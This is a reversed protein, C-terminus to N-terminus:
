ESAKNEFFAKAEALSTKDANYFVMYDVSFRQSRGALTLTYTEGKKLKYVLDFFEHRGREARQAWHWENEPTNTSGEQFYKLYNGLTQKDLNTASEFDGQLKVFADNCWDGRDGELRKSSMMLLRYNGDIPVKVTYQLPSNPEGVSPTNGMFELYTKGSANAVYNKNKSTIKLWKGLPSKTSEAEIKIFDKSTLAESKTGTIEKVKYFFAKKTESNIGWDVPITQFGNKLDSDGKKRYDFFGWSIHNKLAINFHSNDAEFDHNDDENIVIPLKRGGVAKKVKAIHNEYDETKRLANCHFLVFDAVKIVNETPVTQAAFSVSVNYRFGNREISKALVILEHVRQMLLIEHDYHKLDAQTENDIELLVNRYKKDHLWNVLETVARKIATEDYLRQDQGFYFMGLIVVMGLDDAKKLIRDLRNMYGYNLSGDANFGPNYFDFNGYGFPSGGQMNVTIANLGFSKWKSMAAVFELNNREPDWKKTDAYAFTDRTAVNLDDFIGQVMRSNMLLGEIKKGKWQRGEYTPKNNIYFQEGVISVSTKQSFVNLFPSIILSFLLIYKLKNM